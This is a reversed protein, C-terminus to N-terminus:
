SDRPPPPPPPESTGVITDEVPKKHKGRMREVFEAMSIGMRVLTKGLRHNQDAMAQQFATMLDDHRHPADPPPIIPQIIAQLERIIERRPNTDTAILKNQM